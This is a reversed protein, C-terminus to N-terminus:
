LPVRSPCDVVATPLGANFRRKAVSWSQSTKSAQLVAMHRRLDHPGLHDEQYPAPQVVTPVDQRFGLLLGSLGELDPLQGRGRRLHRLERRSPNLQQIEVVLPREQSGKERLKRSASRSWGTLSYVLKTRKPSLLNDPHPKGYQAKGKSPQQGQLKVRTDWFWLTLVGKVIYPSRSFSAM